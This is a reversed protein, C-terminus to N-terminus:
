PKTSGRSCNEEVIAGYLVGMILSQNSSDMTSTLGAKTLAIHAQDQKSCTAQEEGQFCYLCCAVHLGLLKHTNVVTITFEDEGISFSDIANRLRQVTGM